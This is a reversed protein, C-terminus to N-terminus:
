AASVARVSGWVGAAGGLTSGGVGAPGSVVGRFRDRTPVTGVLVEVRGQVALIAGPLETLLCLKGTYPFYGSFKIFFPGFDGDVCYFYWQNIVGTSRVIWPYTKGERDRRKETRFVRNKEQARGVFVVGETRGAARFAALHEAMVDDKRRGRVFHVLPVQEGAIFRHVATAFADSVRAL